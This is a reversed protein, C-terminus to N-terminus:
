NFDATVVTRVTEKLDWVSAYACLLIPSHCEFDITITTLSLYILHARLQKIHGFQRLVNDTTGESGGSVPSPCRASGILM